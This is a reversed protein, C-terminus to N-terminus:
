STAQLEARDNAISRDLPQVIEQLTWLGVQLNKQRGRISSTEIRPVAIEVDAGVEAADILQKSLVVSSRREKAVELLRSAVNVCDGTAAIQQQTDHGLRSLVVQGFHGGIRVDSIERELGAEEIWIGVSRALDFACHCADAADNLEAEPVGFGLMAGDGMFDLVVGRNKAAENVVITHFAKLVDRTRAPGLRESLSTYGSLDIFLIAVNQVQPTLLFTPDEAIRRALAPAQFRGLAEQAMALRGTRIRDLSQRVVALIAVPPISVALALAGNFWYREAFLLSIAVLWATLLGAFTVSAAAIPLFTLGLVGLVLILVAVAADIQRINSTRVLASGDLLNAIATAQVEVGPLVPDFPTAFRDGVGTATVGLVVIRGKLADAGVTGDLVSKASVTHITGRPGYYNLALHWGLDLPQVRDTFRVGDLYLTPMEGLSQAVARLAFSPSIADQTTFVMPLHRPTGGPDTSVNVFGPSSVEGFIPLPLLAGTSVPVQTAPRYLGSFQAAGALVTPMSALSHALAEDAEPVGKSVLLIDVALTLAGADRIADVLDALRRRGMANMDETGVTENDIAVIVVNDPAERPGLMQIRRDLFLTEFPDQLSSEGNIHRESLVAAWLGGGVLAAAILWIPLHRRM